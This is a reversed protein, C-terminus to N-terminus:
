RITVDERIGELTMEGIGDVATLDQKSEFPGNAKRYDVIAAAKVPGIGELRQLAEVDAQNLNIAAAFVAPAVVLAAACLATKLLDM